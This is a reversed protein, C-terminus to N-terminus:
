APRLDTTDRNSKGLNCKQCLTQLNSDEDSGGKSRPIIHDVHLLVGHVNASRSCSCCTWKDRALIRWWRGPRVFSYSDLEPAVFDGSEAGADTSSSEEAVVAEEDYLREQAAKYQDLREALRPEEGEAIATIAEALPYLAVFAKILPNLGWAMSLPLDFMPTILHNARRYDLDGTSFSDVLGLFAHARTWAIHHQALIPSLLKENEVILQGTRDLFGKDVKQRFPMLEVFMLGDATINFTLYTSHFSFPKGDERLSTLPRQTRRKGAIGIFVEDVVFNTKADPRHSPKYVFTMQDYPNVGYTLEVEELSHKLLASLRPFFYNQLTDLQTKQDPIKFIGVDRQEFALESIDAGIEKKVKAM